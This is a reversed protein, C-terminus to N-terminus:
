KAAEPIGIIKNIFTSLEKAIAGTDKNKLIPLDCSSIWDTQCKHLSELYELSISEEGSRNRDAIRKLCNNPDTSVYIIGGLPTSTSKLHSFLRYYIDFELQDISREHHLMKTFVNLDTDLCRETIFIDRRAPADTEESRVKKRITGEINEFRSLLACSQFTYSWRKRDRYFVELLSEGSCTLNFNIGMLNSSPLLDSVAFSIHGVLDYSASTILARYKRDASAIVHPLTFRFWEETSVM